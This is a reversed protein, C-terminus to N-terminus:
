RPGVIRFWISCLWDALKWHCPKGIPCLRTRKM